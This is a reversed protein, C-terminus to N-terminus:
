NVEVYSSFDRELYRGSNPDGDAYRKLEDILGSATGRTMKETNVLVVNTKGSLMELYSAQKKTVGKRTWGDGWNYKPQNKNYYNAM